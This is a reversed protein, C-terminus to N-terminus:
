VPRHGNQLALRRGAAGFTEATRQSLPPDYLRALEANTITEGSLTRARVLDVADSKLESGRMMRGDRRHVGQVPVIPVPQIPPVPEPKVPTEPAQGAPEPDVQPTQDGMVTAARSLRAAVVELDADEADTAMKARRIRTRTLAASWPHGYRERFTLQV